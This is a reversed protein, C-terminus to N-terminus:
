NQQVVDPIVVAREILLGNRGRYETVLGTVRFRLDRNSSRVAEEMMELRSNPLIIMPPDRLTRGDSEFIFEFGFGGASRFLRGTRDVIFTGERLLPLSPANPAVAGRGSTADRLETQPLPMLPRAAQEAPRLMQSLLQDAPQVAAPRTAPGPETAATAPATGGGPQAQAWRGSLGAAALGISAILAAGIVGRRLAPNM